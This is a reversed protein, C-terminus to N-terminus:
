LCYSSITDMRTGNYWHVKTQDCQKVDASNLMDGYEMVTFFLSERERERERM